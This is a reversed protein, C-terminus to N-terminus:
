QLTYKTFYLDFVEEPYAKQVSTLLQQQLRKRNTSEVLSDKTQNSFTDIVLEAAPAEEFLDAPTASDDRLQLAVQIQLYHGDALSITQTEMTVYAGGAPPPPEPPTRLFFFWIAAATAGVLVVAGLLLPLLKSRGSRGSDAAGDAPAAKKTPTITAM